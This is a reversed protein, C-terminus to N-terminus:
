PTEIGAEVREAAHADFRDRRGHRMWLSRLSERVSRTTRGLNEGAECRPKEKRAHRSRWVKGNRKRGISAATPSAGSPLEGSKTAAPAISFPRGPWASLLLGHQFLGCAAALVARCGLRCEVAFRQAVVRFQHRIQQVAVAREFGLHFGQPPNE